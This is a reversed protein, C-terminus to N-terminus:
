VVLAAVKMKYAPQAFQVPRIEVHVDFVLFGATEAPIINRM